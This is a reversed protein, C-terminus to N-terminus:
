ARPTMLGRLFIELGYAFSRDAGGARFRPGLARLQPYDAASLAGYDLARDSDGPAQQQLTHGIVYAVLSQFARVRRDPKLGAAALLSLAREVLHLSASSVAPRDAFLVLASPHRLLLQRFAMALRVLDRQWDPGPAPVVMEDLIAGHLGDLLDSKDRVHRYLSMAEVGLEQGLRRMSLAELGERDVLAVAARLVRDRTLGQNAM